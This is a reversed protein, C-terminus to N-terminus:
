RRSDTSPLSHMLKIWLKNFQERNLELLVLFVVLFILLPIWISGGGRITALVQVAIAIVLYGALHTSKKNTEYQAKTLEREHAVDFGKKELTLQVNDPNEKIKHGHDDRGLIDHDTYKWSILGHEDLYEFTEFVEESSYNSDTFLGVEELFEIDLERSDNVLPFKVEGEGEYVISLLGAWNPEEM